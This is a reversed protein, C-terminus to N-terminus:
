TAHRAPLVSKHIGKTFLNYGTAIFQQANECTFSMQHNAKKFPCTTSTHGNEIDFGCLFCVNWNNFRKYINPMHQRQQGGQSPTMQAGGNILPIQTGRRALPFVASPMAPIGGAMRMHDSFPM